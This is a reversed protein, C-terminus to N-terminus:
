LVLGCFVYLCGGDVLCVCIICLAVLLVCCCVVAMLLGCGDVGVRVCWCDFGM